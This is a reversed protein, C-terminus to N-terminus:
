LALLTLVNVRFRHKQGGGLGFLCRCLHPAAHEPPLQSAFGGQNACGGIAGLLPMVAARVKSLHGTTLERKIELGVVFFFITMLIYNIVKLTTLKLYFLGGGIEFGLELFDFYYASIPINAVVLGLVAAILLLIGGSSERHLFDQLPSLKKSM